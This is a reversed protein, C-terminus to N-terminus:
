FAIENKNKKWFKFFSSQYEKNISITDRQDETGTYNNLPHEKFYITCNFKLLDSFEGVYIKINEINEALKLFFSMNKNSIPYKNFISPEILLVRNASIEQRWTPDINYYNYVCIPKNKDVCLNSIPFSNELILNTTKLFIKPQSINVLREYSVDLFSNKQVTKTYKNINDQNAFYKKNSNAGCVWQWSLANSAWDADLLHYYMWKAPIKWHTKAINTTISAIYMRLHNHIYGFEYLDRIASDIANIGTQANLICSPFKKNLVDAQSTKVETDINKHKWVIQWYERWLLEQIFKECEYFKYNKYLYTFIQKTSIVGRSIYPSLRSVSGDIYNRNKSYQKPKLELIKNLIRDYNTTM